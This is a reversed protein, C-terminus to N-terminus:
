NGIARQKRDLFQLYANDPEIKLARDLAARAAAWDVVVTAEHEVWIAEVVQRARALADSDPPNTLYREVPERLRKLEAVKIPKVPYLNYYEILPRDDTIIPTDELYASLEEDAAIFTSLLHEPSRLGIASLDESVKPASMRIALKSLDNRLRENSGIAVGDMRNPLWLSVHKFQALMTKLIMRSLSGREMDLPVWQAVIANPRMKQKALKYFEESYLNVAGADHPPPPELTLVDFIGQTSLLYYRGDAVIKRVRPNEHFRRNVPIFYPAFDFVDYALDVAHISRLEDYNTIAGVTTGTGVCIVVAQSPGIHLLVPYHALAAMYRRGELRNNAYSKSNVLLQQYTGAVNDRYELVQFTAEKSERLALVKANNFATLQREIYHSGCLLQAVILVCLAVAGQRWLIRDARIESQSVTIAAFLAM